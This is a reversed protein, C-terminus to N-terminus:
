VGKVFNCWLELQNLLINEANEANWLKLTSQVIPKTTMENWGAEGLANDDYKKHNQFM